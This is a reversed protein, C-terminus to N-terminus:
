NSLLFSDQMESTVAQLPKANGDFPVLAAQDKRRQLIFKYVKRGDLGDEYNCDTISYLGDYTYVVGSPSSICSHGRMVRIPIGLNKSNSLALNGRWLKQDTATAGQLRQVKSNVLGGHGTYVVTEGNDIDDKYVKDKGIVVSTAFSQKYISSKEPVYGIGARIHRHLGLVCLTIRFPFADGVRVGEVAGVVESFNLWLGKQRLVSAAKLDPRRLVVAHEQCERQIAVRLRDFSDRVALVKERHPDEVAVGDLELKPLRIASDVKGSSILLDLQSTSSAAAEPRSDRKRKRSSSRPQSSKSAPALQGTSTPSVLDEDWGRRSLALPLDKGVAAAKATHVTSVPVIALGVHPECTEPAPLSLPTCDPPEIKVVARRQAALLEDRAQSMTLLVQLQESASRLPSCSPTTSIPTSDGSSLDIVEPEVRADLNELSKLDLPPPRPQAIEASLSHNSCRCHGHVIMSDCIHSCLEEEEGDGNWSLNDEEYLYDPEPELKVEEKVLGPEQKVHVPYLFQADTQVNEQVQLWM